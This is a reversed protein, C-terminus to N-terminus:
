PRSGGIQKNKPVVSLARSLTPKQPDALLQDESGFKNTHSKMLKRVEAAKEGSSEVLVKKLDAEDLKQKM